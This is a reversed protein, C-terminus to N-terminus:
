IYREGVDSYMIDAEKDYKLLLNVGKAVAKHAKIICAAMIKVDGRAKLGNDSKKYCRSVSALGSNGGFNQVVASM